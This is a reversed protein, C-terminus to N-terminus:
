TFTRTATQRRAGNGALQFKRMPEVYLSFIYPQPADFLGTSVAWNQYDLNWPKYYAANQPVHKIWFGGNDIYDNLQNQNPSGSVLIMKQVGVLWHAL